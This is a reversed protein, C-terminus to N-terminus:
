PKLEPKRSLLIMELFVACLDKSILENEYLTFPQRYIIKISKKVELNILLKLCYM